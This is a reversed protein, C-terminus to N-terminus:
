AARGEAHDIISRMLEYTRHAMRGTRRDSEDYVGPCETEFVTAIETWRSVLAAWVPSEGAMDSFRERFDPVRRLLVECRRFDDPDHPYNSGWRDQTVGYTLRDYIAQSSIGHEGHLHWTIAQSTSM